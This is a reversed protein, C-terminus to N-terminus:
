TSLGAPSSETSLCITVAALRAWWSSRPTTDAAQTEARASSICTNDPLVATAEQSVSRGTPRPKRGLTQEPRSQKRDSRALATVRMRATETVRVFAGVVPNPGGMIKGTIAAGNVNGSPIASTGLGCGTMLLSGALGVIAMFALKNVSTSRNRSTM